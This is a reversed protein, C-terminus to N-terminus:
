YLCHIFYQIIPRRRFIFHFNLSRVITYNLLIRKGFGFDNGFECIGVLRKSKYKTRDVVNADPVNSQTKSERIQFDIAFFENNKMLNELVFHIVPSMGILVNGISGHAIAISALHEM